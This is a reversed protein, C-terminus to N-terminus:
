YMEFPVGYKLRVVKICSSSSMCNSNIKEILSIFREVNPCHVPVVVRPALKEVLEEIEKAGCHGSVHDRKIRRKIKECSPNLCGEPPSVPALEYRIGFTDLWSIMREEDMEMDDSFPECIAKIFLSDPVKGCDNALDFLQNLEFFGFMLTYKGPSARIQEATLGNQYHSSDNEWGDGVSFGYEFKQRIYDQPSYLCSDKRKLFVKVDKPIVEGLTNLLYALKATIIFERGAKRCANLVTKYRTTDKWSFDIFVLGKTSRFQDALSKEVDEEKIVAESEVRTGECIMIDPVSSEASKEKLLKRVNEVYEDITPAGPMNGHFRLDGTYLINYHRLDNKNTKDTKDRKDTKDTKNTKESHKAAPAKVEKAQILFSCSGPISHDVPILAVEFNDAINNWTLPPLTSVNRLVSEKSKSIKPAGPFTVNGKNSTLTVGAIRTKIVEMPEGAVDDVAQLIKKTTDTCFVPINTDLFGIDGAHDLHAHTLLIASVFPQKHKEFYERYSEVSPIKFYSSASTLVRSFLPNNRITPDDIIELNSPRFSDERYMGGLAPLSGIMIRDKLETNTRTELFEAFFISDFGMRRGFDLLIRSAGAELLFRNGGVEGIGGFGTIKM